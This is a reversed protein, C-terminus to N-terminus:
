RAVNRQNFATKKLQLLPLLGITISLWKWQIKKQGQMLEYIWREIWLVDRNDIMIIMIIALRSSRSFAKGLSASQMVAPLIQPKEASCLFYTKPLFVVYGGFDPKGVGM